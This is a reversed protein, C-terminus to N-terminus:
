KLLDVIDKNSLDNSLPPEDKKESAQAGLKVPTTWLNLPDSGESVKFNNYLTNAVGDLQTDKVTYGENDAFMRIFNKAEDLSEFEPREQTAYGVLRKLNLPEPKEKRRDTDSKFFSKGGGFVALRWPADPLGLRKRDQRSMAKWEEYTHNKMVTQFAERAAEVRIANRKGDNKVKDYGKEKLIGTYQRNFADVELYEKINGDLDQAKQAEFDPMTREEKGFGPEAEAGVPLIMDGAVPGTEPFMPKEPDGLISTPGEPLAFMEETQTDENKITVTQEETAPEVEEGNLIAKIYDDSLDGFKAYSEMILKTARQNKISNLLNDLESKTDVAEFLDQLAESRQGNLNFGQGWGQYALQKDIKAMALGARQMKAKFEEKSNTGSISQLQSFDKETLTATDIDGVPSMRAAYLGTYRQAVRDLDDAAYDSEKMIFPTAAALGAIPKGKIGGAAEYDLISQVDVGQVSLEAVAQEASLRPNTAFLTSLFSKGRAKSQAVESKPNAEGALNNTYGMVISELAKEATMGEPLKFSEPLKLTAMLDNKSFMFPTGNQAAKAKATYLTTAIEAVNHQQAIAVFEDKSIGFDSQFRNMMDKTASLEARSQQYKPAKARARSMMDDVYKKQQDERKEIGEILTGSFGEAFGAGFASAM